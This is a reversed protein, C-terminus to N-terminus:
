ILGNIFSSLFKLFINNKLYGLSLKLSLEICFTSQKLIHNKYLKRNMIDARSIFNRRKKHTKCQIPYSLIESGVFINEQISEEKAKSIKFVKKRLTRKYLNSPIPNLPKTNREKENQCFLSWFHTCLYFQTKIKNKRHNSCKITAFLRQLCHANIHQLNRRIIYQM